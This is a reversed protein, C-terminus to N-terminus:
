ALFNQLKKVSYKKSYAIVELKQNEDLTKIHSYKGSTKINKPTKSASINKIQEDTKRSNKDSNAESEAPSDKPENNKSDLVGCIEKEDATKEDDLWIQLTKGGRGIGYIFKYSFIKTNITLIKQSEKQAKAAIRQLKRVNVGFIEAAEKSSMWM